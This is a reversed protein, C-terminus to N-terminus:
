PKLENLVTLIRAIDRRLLGLEKVNRAKGQGSLAELEERRILRERLLEKLEPSPKKRLEIARMTM